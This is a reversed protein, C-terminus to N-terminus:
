FNPFLPRPIRSVYTHTRTPSEPRNGAGSNGQAVHPAQIGTIGVMALRNAVQALSRSMTWQSALMDSILQMFTVEQEM